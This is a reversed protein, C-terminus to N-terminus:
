RSSSAAIQGVLSEFASRRTWRCGFPTEKSGPPFTRIYQPLITYDTCVRVAYDCQQGVDKGDFVCEYSVAMSSYGENFVVGHHVIGYMATAEKPVAPVKANRLFLLYEGGLKFGIYPGFYVNEGANTGKFSRKVEAKYMATTYNETDGSVIRVTAVIDAAKFLQALEIKGPETVTVEKPQQAFSAHIALASLFLSAAIRRTTNVAFFTSV